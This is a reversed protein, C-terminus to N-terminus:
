QPGEGSSWPAPWEVMRCQVADGVRGCDFDLGHHRLVAYGACLLVAAAAIPHVRIPQRRPNEAPRLPPRFAPRHTRTEM